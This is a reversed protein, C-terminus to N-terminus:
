RSRRRDYSAGPDGAFIPRAAPDGEGELSRGAPHEPGEHEPRDPKGKIGGETADGRMPWQATISAGAGASVGAEEGPERSSWSPQGLRDASAM